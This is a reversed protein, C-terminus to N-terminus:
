MYMCEGAGIRIQLQMSCKIGSLCGLDELEAILDRQSYRNPINRIRPEETNVKATGKTIVTTMRMNIPTIIAIMIMFTISITMTRAISLNHSHRDHKGNNCNQQNHLEERPETGVM